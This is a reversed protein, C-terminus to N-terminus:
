HTKSNPIVCHELDKGGFILYITHVNCLFVNYLVQRVIELNFNLPACSIYKYTIIERPKM